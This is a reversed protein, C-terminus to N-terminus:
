KEGWFETGQSTPFMELNKLQSLKINALTMPELNIFGRLVEEKMGGRRRKPTKYSWNKSREERGQSDEEEDVVAGGHVQRFSDQTRREGGAKVYERKPLEGVEMITTIKSHSLEWFKIEVRIEKSCM